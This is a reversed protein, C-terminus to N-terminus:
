VAGQRDGPRVAHPRNRGRREYGPAGPHRAPARHHKGRARARGRLAERRPAQLAFRAREQHQRRSKQTGHSLDQSLTAREARASTRSRSSRSPSDTLRRGCTIRAASSSSSRYRPARATACWRPSCRGGKLTPKGVKVDAGEGVLLVEGFEVTAGPEADLKEVRLVADKTVRYQ